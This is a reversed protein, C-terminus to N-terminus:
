KFVPAREGGFKIKHLLKGTKPAAVPVVFVIKVHM